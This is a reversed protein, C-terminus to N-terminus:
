SFLKIFVLQNIKLYILKRKEKIPVDKENDRKRKGKNEKRKIIEVKGKEKLRQVDIGKGKKHPLACACNVGGRGLM